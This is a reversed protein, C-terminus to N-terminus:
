DPDPRYAKRALLKAGLMDFFQEAMEEACLETPIHVARLDDQDKLTLPLDWPQIINKEFWDEDVAQGFFLRLFHFRKTTLLTGIDNIVRKNPGHAFYLVLDKPLDKKPNLDVNFISQSHLEIDVEYLANNLYVISASSVDLLAQTIDTDSAPAVISLATIKDIGLYHTM